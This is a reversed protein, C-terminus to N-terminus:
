DGDDGADITAVTIKTSGVLLYHWCLSSSLSVTESKMVESVDNIIFDLLYDFEM